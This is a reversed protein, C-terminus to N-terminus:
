IGVKFVGLREDQTEEKETGSERSRETEVSDSRFDDRQEERLDEVPPNNTGGEDGGTDAGSGGATLDAVYGNFDNWEAYDADGLEYMEGLRGGGGIDLGRGSPLDQEATPNGAEDLGQVYATDQFCQASANAGDFGTVWSTGRAGAIATPTRVEFRENKSLNKIL